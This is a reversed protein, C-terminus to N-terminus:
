ICRSPQRTWNPLTQPFWCRQTCRWSEECAVDISPLVGFRWMDTGVGFPVEILSFLRSGACYSWVIQQWWFIAQLISV